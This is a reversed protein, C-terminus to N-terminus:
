TMGVRQATRRFSGSEIDSDPDLMEVIRCLGVTWEYWYPAGSGASDNPM